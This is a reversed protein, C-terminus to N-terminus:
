HLPASATKVWSGRQGKATRAFLSLLDSRHDWQKPIAGFGRKETKKARGLEVGTLGTLDWYTAATARDPEELLTGIEM